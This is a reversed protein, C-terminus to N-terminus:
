SGFGAFQRMTWLKGRYGTPHVGRVYPFEGPVGIDAIPDLRSVQEPTVLSPVDWSSVTTWDNKWPPSSAESKARAKEWAERAARARREVEDKLTTSKATSESPAAPARIEDRVTM